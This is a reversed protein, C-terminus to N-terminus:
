QINEFFLRLTKHVTTVLGNKRWFPWPILSYMVQAMIEEDVKLEPEAWDVPLQQGWLFVRGNSLKHHAMAASWHSDYEVFAFRYHPPISLSERIIVCSLPVVSSEMVSHTDLWLGVM